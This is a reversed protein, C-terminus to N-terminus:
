NLVNLGLPKRVAKGRGRDRSFQRVWMVSVCVCMCMCACLCKMGQQLVVSGTNSHCLSRHEHIRLWHNQDFAHKRSLFEISVRASQPEKLKNFIPRPERTRSMISRKLLTSSCCHDEPCSTVRRRASMMIKRNRITSNHSRM